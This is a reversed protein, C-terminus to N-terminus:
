RVSSSRRIRRSRMSGSASSRGGEVRLAAVQEDRAGNKRDQDELVFRENKPERQSHSVRALFMRRLVCGRPAQPLPPGTVSLHLRYRLGASWPARRLIMEPKTDRGRIRSMCHRRQRPTLVDM